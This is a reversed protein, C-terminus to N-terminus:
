SFKGGPAAGSPVDVKENGEMRNTSVMFKIRAQGNVVYLDYWVPVEVVQGLSAKWDDDKGGYHYVAKLNAGRGRELVRLIVFAKGGKTTGFGLDLLEGRLYLGQKGNGNGNGAM